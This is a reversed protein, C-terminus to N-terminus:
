QERGNNMRDKRSLGGEDELRVSLPTDSWVNLMARRGGHNFVICLHDESMMEAHASECDIFEDDFDAPNVTRVEQRTM